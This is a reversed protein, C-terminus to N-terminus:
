RWTIIPAPLRIRRKTRSPANTEGTKKAKAMLQEAIVGQGQGLSVIEFKKQKVAAFDLLMRTPDAGTTLVAPVLQPWLM